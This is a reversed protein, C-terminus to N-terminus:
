WVEILVLARAARRALPSGFGQLFQAYLQNGQAIGLQIRQCQGFFQQRRDVLRATEVAAGCQGSLPLVDALQHAVHIGLGYFPRQRM